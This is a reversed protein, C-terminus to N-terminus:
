IMELINERNMELLSGIQVESDRDFMKEFLEGKEYLVDLVRQEITDVMTMNILRITKYESGLRRIRGIRQHLKAPNWPLDLNILIGGAQLNLGYEIAETGAIIKQGEGATFDDIILQRNRQNTDGTIIEIPLKKLESQILKIFKKFRSIIVVKEFRYEEKLLRELEKIKEGKGERELLRPDNCVEQLYTLQAFVDITTASGYIEGKVEKYLAKQSGQMELEINQTIIYPLEKQVDSITRRVYLGAIKQKADHMNQYHDLEEILIYGRGQWIKRTKMVCYKHMFYRRTRWREKDIWEIIAYLDELGNEIPTATLAVRYETDPWLKRIAKNTKTGRNKIKTAEDLAIFDVDLEKVADFDNVVNAYSMIMIGTNFTPETWQRYIRKRSQKDGDLVMIRTEPFKDRNIFKRIERLWQLRLSAPVVLIFREANGEWILRLMATITVVTKGLGVDDALLVKKQKIIFEVAQEQFHYPDYDDDLMSGFGFPETATLIRKAEKVDKVQNKLQEAVEPTLPLNYEELFDKIFHWHVRYEGQKKKGLFPLDLMQDTKVVLQNNQIFYNM